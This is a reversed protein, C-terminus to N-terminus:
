SSRRQGDSPSANSRQIRDYRRKQVTFKRPSNERGASTVDSIKGEQKPTCAVRKVVGAQKKLNELRMTKEEPTEEAELISVAIKDCEEAIAVEKQRIGRKIGM